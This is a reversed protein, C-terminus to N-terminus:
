NFSVRRDVVTYLIDVLLICVITIFSGVLLISQVLQLDRNNIALITLQGFGPYSFISEVVLSGALLGGIQTGVVTIVPLLANKFAHKVNVVFESLGRARTAVIYDENLVDIMSSRLMRTVASIFGFGMCIAPMIMHKFTGMGQTPLWHLEIGFVLMMLLCLWVASMSQGLLAIFTAFLDVVSGKHTGAVLGLIIAFVLSFSVSLLVLEATQGLRTFILTACDTGFVYSYGLDGALLGKMYKFYQVIYPENLGMRQRMAEISSAPADAPLLARAPDGGASRVLAFAIISVGILTILTFLVRKLIKRWVKCRGKTFSRLTRCSSGGCRGAQTIVFSHM